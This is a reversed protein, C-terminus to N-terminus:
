QHVRLRLIEELVTCKTDNGTTTEEIGVNKNNNKWEEVNQRGGGGGGVDFSADGGQRLYNMLSSSEEIGIANIDIQSPPVLQFIFGPSSSPLQQQQHQVRFQHPHLAAAADISHGSVGSEQQQRPQYDNRSRVATQPHHLKTSQTQTQKHITPIDWIWYGKPDMGAHLCRALRCSKCIARCAPYINFIMFLNGM